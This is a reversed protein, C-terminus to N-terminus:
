DPGVVVGGSTSRMYDDTIIVQGTRVARSNPGTETVPMPPLKSVDVEAGDGWGYFATRVDRTSDYLSVFFGDCPLSVNTFERLGRFITNLERATGLVQSLSSIRELLRVYELLARENAESIAAESRLLEEATAEARSRARVEARTVFFFLLSLLAGTIITFKLLPRGSGREFSPTIAYSVTWTRGAVPIM